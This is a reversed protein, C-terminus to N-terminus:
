KGALFERAYGGRVRETLMEGNGDLVSAKLGTGGIDIALTKPEKKASARKSNPKPQLRPEAERRPLVNKMSTGDNCGWRAPSELPNSPTNKASRRRSRSPAGRPSISWRIISTATALLTQVNSIKRAIESDCRVGDKFMEEVWTRSSRGHRGSEAPRKFTSRAALKVVWGFGLQLFEEWRWATAAPMRSTLAGRARLRFYRSNTSM